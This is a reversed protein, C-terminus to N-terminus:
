PEASRTGTEGRKEEGARVANRLCDIKLEKIKMMKQTAVKPDGKKECVDANGGLIKGPMGKEHKVGEAKQM